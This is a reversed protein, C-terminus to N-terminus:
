GGLLHWDPPLTPAPDGTTNGSKAGTLTATSLDFSSLDKGSFDFGTLDAGPGILLGDLLGWGTPLSTPSGTIGTGHVGAFTAAGLDAGDLDVGDLNANTLDADHGLLYGGHALWGEPM